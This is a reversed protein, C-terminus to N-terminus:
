GVVLRKHVVFLRPADHRSVEAYEERMVFEAPLESLFKAVAETEEAGGPHGPYALVTVIGGPRLLELAASIAKLTSTTQTTLSHDGGPLYGLNFMVAGITGHFEQPIADHLEAHDRALLTVNRANAIATAAHSLAELQVDFAFVRGDPGVQESLFRTDHGNGATADIAIEGATLVARVAAHALDTLRPM